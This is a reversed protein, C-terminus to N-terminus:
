AEDARRGGKDQAVNLVLDHLEAIQANLKVITEKAEVARMVVEQPLIKQGRGLSVILALSRRLGEKGFKGYIIEDLKEAAVMGCTERLAQRYVSLERMSREVSDATVSLGADIGEIDASTGNGEAIRDLFQRAGKPSFALADLNRAASRSRHSRLEGSVVKHGDQVLAALERLCAVLERLGKAFDTVSGPIALFAGGEGDSKSM